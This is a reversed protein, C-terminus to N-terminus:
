PVGAVEPSPAELLPFRPALREAKAWKGPLPRGDAKQGVWGDRVAQECLAQLGRRLAEQEEPTDVPVCAWTLCRDCFDGVWRAEPGCRPCFKGVSMKLGGSSLM